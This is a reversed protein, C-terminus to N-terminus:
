KGPNCPLLKQNLHTTVVQKSSMNTFKMNKKSTQLDGLLKQGKTLNDEFNQGASLYIEPDDDPTNTLWNAHKKVIQIVYMKNNLLPPHSFM